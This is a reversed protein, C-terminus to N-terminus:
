HLILSREPMVINQSSILILLYRELLTKRSSGAKTIVLSLGVVIAIAVVFGVFTISVNQAGSM